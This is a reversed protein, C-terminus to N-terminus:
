QDAYVGQVLANLFGFLSLPLARMALCHCHAFQDAKPEDKVAQWHHLKYPWVKLWVLLVGEHLRLLPLPAVVMAVLLWRGYRALIATLLGLAVKPALLVVVLLVLCAAIACACYQDMVPLRGKLRVAVALLQVVM